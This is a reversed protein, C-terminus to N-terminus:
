RGIQMAVARGIAISHERLLAETEVPTAVTFRVDLTVLYGAQLWRTVMVSRSPMTTTLSGDTFGLDVAEVGDSVSSGDTPGGLEDGDEPVRVMVYCNLPTHVAVQEARPTYIAEVAGALGPVSHRAVTRYEDVESPLLGLLADKSEAVGTGGPQPSGAEVEAGGAQTGERQALVLKRGELQLVSLIVCAALTACVVFLM